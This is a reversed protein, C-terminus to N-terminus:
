IQCEIVDTSKKEQMESLFRFTPSNLFAKLIGWTFKAEVYFVRQM